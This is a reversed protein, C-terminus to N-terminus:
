FDTILDTLQPDDVFPNRNGQFKEITDNREIEEADVPDILHWQRLFFEEYAPIRIKYRISFYFLARAVNGKHELPPEFGDAGTQSIRGMKSANCDGYVARADKSFQSFYLNGRSSNSKSDSPFLHHLDVKQMGKSMGNNFRSQPWTHEINIENHSPMRNPGVNRRFFKQCYVDRVFYGQNDQKLHLEQIVVKRAYSYSGVSHHNQSAMEFLEQRYRDDFRGQGYATSTLVLVLLFFRVM